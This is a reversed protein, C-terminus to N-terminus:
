GKAAHNEEDSNETPGLEEKFKYNIFDVYKCSISSFTGDIDVTYDYVLISSGSEVDRIIFTGICDKEHIEVECYEPSIEPTLDKFYSYLGACAPSNVCALDNTTKDTAVSWVYDETLLIIDPTKTGCSTFLISCAILILVLLM